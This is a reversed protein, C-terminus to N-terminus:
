RSIKDALRVPKNVNVALDVAVLSRKLFTASAAVVLHILAVAVAVLFEQKVLVTTDPVHTLTQCCKM